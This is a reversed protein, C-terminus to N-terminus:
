ACTSVGYERLRQERIEYLIKGSTRPNDHAWEHCERCLPIRNEFVWWDKPRISRFAIEHVVETPKRCRACKHRFAKLVVERTV